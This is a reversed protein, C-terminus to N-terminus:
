YGFYTYGDKSSRHDHITRQGNQDLVVKTLKHITELEDHAAQRLVEDLTITTAAFFQGKCLFDFFNSAEELHAYQYQVLAQGNTTITIHYNTKTM